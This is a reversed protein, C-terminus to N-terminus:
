DAAQSREALRARRLTLTFESGRGEESSVSLDGGMARALDRSISLGLGTGESSRTLTPDVQVFPEFIAGQKDVPIGRGTDTVRIRVDEDDADWDLTVRGGPDTFKIANTLLNLVVQEMRERDARAAVDPAGPRFAYELSRARLQPEILAELSALTDNVPVDDIEYQVQGAEIKAFNLVDNILGLLHVQNRRIKALAETQAPTVPGHIGMEILQGYGGIANLPTRLEHSMTALFASKAENAVDAAARAREAEATRVVLEDNARQLEDHAMEMEAQAEELEGAQQELQARSEETEHFLRANDIAVAARRALEEALRVDEPGYRRDSEAQVLSIAGVVRDRALLPVVIYSRLGLAHILRRHEEDRASEDLLEPPIERVWETEGTRIVRPVGRPADPPTPYRREIEEAADKRAPDPHEVAVRRIRGEEDVVDVACWDALRPVALRAVTRLTTEYDLSSALVRSADALFDRAREERRQETVDSNAGVWERVRGGPELVPVGRVATIRWEGDHRRIRYEAAYQRREQVALRWLDATRERDEPHVANTWGSGRYEDFTMGTFSEWGPQPEVFEGAASTTWVIQSSAQVLSRFRDESRRIAETEAVRARARRDALAVLIVAGLVAISAAGVGAALGSTRLVSEEPIALSGRAPGFRSAAMATYHMGAIASGMLLSAGAKSWRGRRTEDARFRIALSLAALSAGVAILVSAVVLWPVYRVTAGVKLGVMGLYHMGAIAAGMLLGATALGPWRVVPRSAVFLALASAAVAVGASAAVAAVDYAMAVPLQFALMGVFHMSWIGLGMAISGGVLWAARFRGGAATVRAALALAAYSALVAILISLAVLTPSYHGHM